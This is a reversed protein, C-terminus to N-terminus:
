IESKPSAKLRVFGAGATVALFATLGSFALMTPMHAAVNEWHPTVVEASNFVEGSYECGIFAVGRLTAERDIRSILDGAQNSVDPMTRMHMLLEKAASLYAHSCENFPSGEDTNSGPMIGWMCYTRQIGEFNLLSRFKSDTKEVTRAVALISTRFEAVVGMEGHSLSGIEVGSTNGPKYSGHAWGVGASVNLTLLLILIRYLHM